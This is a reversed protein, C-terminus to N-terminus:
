FNRLEWANTEVSLSNFGLYRGDPSPRPSGVWRLTSVNSLIRANGNLDCQLIGPLYDRRPSEELYGSIYFGDGNATWTLSPDWVDFGKVPFARNPEGDKILTIWARDLLAIRSGDPSLDWPARTAAGAKGFEGRRGLVSDFSTFVMTGDQKRECLMSTAGPFHACRFGAYYKSELVREPPGGSVPIRMLIGTTYQSISDDSAWFLIWNGDPSVTPTDQLGPGGTVAVAEREGVRMRFGDRDGNRDSNFFITQSDRGWSSLWDNRDDMTLRHPTDLLGDKRSLDGVFIDM